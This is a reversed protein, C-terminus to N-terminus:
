THDRSLSNFAEYGKKKHKVVNPALSGSLPLQFFYREKARLGSSITVHDRSLSNFPRWATAYRM